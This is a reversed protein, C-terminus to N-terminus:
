EFLQSSFKIFRRMYRSTPKSQAATIELQAGGGDGATRAKPSLWNQIM